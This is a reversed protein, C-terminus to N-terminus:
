SGSHITCFKWCPVSFRLRASLVMVRTMFPIASCSGGGDGSPGGTWSSRNEGARLRTQSLRSPRARFGELSGDVVFPLPTDPQRQLLPVVRRAALTNRGPAAPATCGAPTTKQQRDNEDVDDPGDRAADPRIGASPDARGPNNHLGTGYRVTLRTSMPGERPTGADGADRWEYSPDRNGRDEIRSASLRRHIGNTATTTMAAAPNATYRSL